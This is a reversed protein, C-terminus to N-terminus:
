FSSRKDGWSVVVAGDYIVMVAASDISDYNTKAEELKRSSWGAEEASAYMQWSRQVFRNHSHALWQRWQDVPYNGASATTAGALIVLSLSLVGIAARKM